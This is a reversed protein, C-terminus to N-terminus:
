RRIIPRQLDPVELGVSAEEGMPALGVIVYDGRTRGDDDGTVASATDPEQIPGRRLARGSELDWVKDLGDVVVVLRGTAGLQKSVRGLLELLRREPKAEADRLRPFAAEIQAALSAAIV